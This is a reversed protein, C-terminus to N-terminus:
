VGNGGGRIRAGMKTLFAIVDLVEPEQAANDIITTGPALSAAMTLNETGTHSPTDLYLHAGRLGNTGAKIHIVADGEDVVAGLRAFGRYHFDLNRSGLNCGGVGEIHAEGLRPLLPPVFRVASP